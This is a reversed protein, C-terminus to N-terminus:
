EVDDDLFTEANELLKLSRYRYTNGYKVDGTAMGRTFWVFRMMSSGHGFNETRDEGLADDGVAAAAELANMIDDESLDEFDAIVYHAWIGAYFDAQLESQVSVLNAKTEKGREQLKFEIEQYKSLDGTLHQVHHGVEHAIVYAFAFNGNVDVEKMSEFFTLNLYVSENVVCYFPGTDEDGEGCPTDVTGSYYVVKPARYQNGFSAFVKTWTESTSKLVTDAFTKLDTINDFIKETAKSKNLARNHEDKLFSDDEDYDEDSDFWSLDDAQYFACKEGECADLGSDSDVEVILAVAICLLVFVIGIKLLWKM